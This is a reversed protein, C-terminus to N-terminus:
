GGKRGNRLAFCFSYLVGTSIELAALFVLIMFLGSHSLSFRFKEIFFGVGITRWFGDLLASFGLSVAALLTFLVATETMFTGLVATKHIGLAYLIWTERTREYFLLVCSSLVTIFALVGTVAMIKGALAEEYFEEHSTLAHALPYFALYDEHGLRSAALKFTQYDEPATLQYFAIYNNFTHAAAFRPDSADGYATYATDFDTFVTYYVSTKTRRYPMSGLEYNLEGAENKGIKRYIGTNGDSIYVTVLGTVRLTRLVNGADDYLTISDGVAIGNLHAFDKYLTCEGQGAAAERGEEVALHLTPQAHATMEDDYLPLIDMPGGYLVLQRRKAETGGFGKMKAYTKVGYVLETKEVGELRSFKEFFHRDATLDFDYLDMSGDHNFNDEPIVFHVDDESLGRKGQYQLDDRFRLEARGLCENEWFANYARIEARYFAAYFFFTLFFLLVAGTVLYRRRHRILNKLANTFPYMM